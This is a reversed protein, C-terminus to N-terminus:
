GNQALISCAVVLQLVLADDDGAFAGAPVELEIGLSAADVTQLVEMREADLKDEIDELAAGPGGRVAEAVVVYPELPEDSTECRRECPGDAVVAYQYELSLRLHPM